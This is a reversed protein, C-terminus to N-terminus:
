KPPILMFSFTKFHNFAAPIRAILVKACVATAVMPVDAMM